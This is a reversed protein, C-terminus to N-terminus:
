PYLRKLITSSKRRYALIKKEVEMIEANIAEIEEFDYNDNEAMLILEEYLENREVQQNVIDM